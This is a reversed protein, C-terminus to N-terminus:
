PNVSTDEEDGRNGVPRPSSTKQAWQSVIVGAVILVGGIVLSPDVAEHLFLAALITGSLPQFFFFVGGTAPDVQRLGYSWLWFALATSFVGVYLVGLWFVESRWVGASVSPLSVWAAPTILLWAIGLAYATVRTTSITSPMYGVWVSMLAWTLAAAVLIGSGWTIRAAGQWPVVMLVGLTALGVASTKAATLKEHYLLRAFVVMFAPTAATIVSGLTATSLATGWFQAGISLVYGMVGVRFAWKLTDRDFRLQRRAILGGLMVVSAIGYRLWMLLVPSVATLLEKSVVYMGGWITAAAALAIMGGLRRIISGGTRGAPDYGIM